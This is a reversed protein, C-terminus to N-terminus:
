EDWDSCESGENDDDDDDGGDDGRRMSTEAAIGQM